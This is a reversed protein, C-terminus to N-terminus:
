AFMRQGSCLRSLIKEREDDIDAKTYSYEGQGVSESKLGPKTSIALACLDILVKVRRSTDSTPVYTITVRNGWCTLPNPGTALRRIQKGGPVIEYDTTDLTVPTLGGLFWDAHMEVISTVTAVPRKPYILSGPREEEYEEVEAANAGCREIIAAEEADIIDQLASDSLSTSAHERLTAPTILSTASSWVAYLTTDAAIAFVDGPARATGSGNAATNWGAFNYGSYVLAGVNGQVTVPDSVEYASADVPVAGGPAGNRNYTLAVSM